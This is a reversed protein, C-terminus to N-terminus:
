GNTVRFGDEDRKSVYPLQFYREEAETPADIPRSGNSYLYEGEDAIAVRGNKTQFVFHIDGRLEGDYCFSVEAGAPMEQLKLILESVKM